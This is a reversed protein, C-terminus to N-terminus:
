RVANSLPMGTTTGPPIPPAATVKVVLSRVTLGAATAARLLADAELRLKTKWVPANVLFVLKDRDVNALRCQNALTAPLCRRLVQDLEDLWRARAILDAMGADSAAQLAQPPSSARAADRSHSHPQKTMIFTIITD